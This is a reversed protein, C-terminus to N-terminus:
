LSRYPWVLKELYQMYNTETTILHDHILKGLPFVEASISFPSTGATPSYFATFIIAFVSVLPTRASGKIKCLFAFVLMSWAMNPLGLALMISRGVRDSLWYAPLGCVYNAAGFAVGIVAATQASEQSDIMKEKKILEEWVITGLFAIANIGTMQQSIMAVSASLLARRCRRNSVLQRLRKFYGTVGIHYSYPNHKKKTFQIGLDIDLSSSESAQHHLSSLEVNRGRSGVERAITQRNDEGLRTPWYESTHDMRSQASTNSHTERTQNPVVGAPLREHLSPTSLDVREALNGYEKAAGKLLQGEFDLQAHAYMFDRSALFSTTQIQEFAELAKRYRGHKMLYRPSEPMLYIMVM